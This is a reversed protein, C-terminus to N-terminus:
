NLDMFETDMQRRLFTAKSNDQVMDSNAYAQADKRWIAKTKNAQEPTRANNNWKTKSKAKHMHVCRKGLYFELKMKPM